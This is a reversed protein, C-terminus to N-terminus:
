NIHNRVNPSDLSFAPIIVDFRDGNNTEMEYTGAMIGTPTALPCGSTYEFMEGPALVPQEGVVGPGRVEQTRGLGDTIQWHRNILQVTRGGHNEIKIHYAFVFHGEEPESQDELYFPEVSVKIEETTALYM